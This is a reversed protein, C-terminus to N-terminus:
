ENEGEYQKRYVFYNHNGLMFSIDKSLRNKYTKSDSISVLEVKHPRVKRHIRPDFIMYAIDTINDYYSRTLPIHKPDIDEEFYNIQRHRTPKPPHRPKKRTRFEGKGKHVADECPTGQPNWACSFHTCVDPDPSGYPGESISLLDDM